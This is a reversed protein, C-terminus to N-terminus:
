NLAIHSEKLTPRLKSNVNVAKMIGCLKMIQVIVKRLRSHALSSAGSSFVLLTPILNNIKVFM